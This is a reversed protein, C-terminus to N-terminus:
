RRRRAVTRRSSKAKPRSSRAKPRAKARAKKKPRAKEAAKAKKLQAGLTKIKTKKDAVGKILKALTKKAQGMRLQIQKVTAM